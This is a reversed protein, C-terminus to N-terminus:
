GGTITYKDVGYNNGARHYKRRSRTVGAVLYDKQEKIAKVMDAVSVTEPPGNAIHDEFACHPCGDAIAEMPTAWWVHQCNIGWGGGAKCEFQIREHPGKLLLKPKFGMEKLRHKIAQSDGREIGAEILAEDM